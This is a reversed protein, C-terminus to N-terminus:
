AKIAFTDITLPEVIKTPPPSWFITRWAASEIFTEVEGNTM